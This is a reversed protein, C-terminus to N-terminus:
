RAAPVGVAWSSRRWRRRITTVTRATPASPQRHWSAAGRPSMRTYRAICLSPAMLALERPEPGPPEAGSENEYGLLFEGPKIPAWTGDPRRTGGGPPQPYIAETGEIPVDTLGDRFGFHEVGDEFAYGDHAAMETVGGTAKAVDRLWATDADIQDANDAFIFVAVHIDEGGFGDQWHEPSLEGVDGNRTARGVAGAMFEDPFSQAIEISMGLARLGFPSIGTSMASVPRGGDAWPTAPSIRKAVEALWKRGASDDDIRVFVARQRMFTYPKIINGQIDDLHKEIDAGTLTRTRDMVTTAM